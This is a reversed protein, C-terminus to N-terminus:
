VSATLIEVIADSNGQASGWLGVVALRWGPKSVDYIMRTQLSLKSTPDVANAAQVISNDPIVPQRVAMVLGQKNGCVGVMKDSNAYSAGGQPLTANKLRAYRHLRFGLLEQVMNRKIAGDDGYFYTPLIGSTLGQYMAPTIICYRETPPIELNDLITSCTQLSTSGTVTFLSSSNVTLTNTYYSSTVNNLANVVMANAMQEAMPKFFTALLVQPTMTSWELENFLADYDQLILTATVASSTLSTPSWGNALNNATSGWQGTSLRTTVSIGGNTIESDFNETWLDIPPMSAIFQELSRQAYVALYGSLSNSDIAM